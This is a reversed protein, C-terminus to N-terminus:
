PTIAYATCCRVRSIPTRRASPASGSRTRVITTSCPIRSATTPTIMPTPSPTHVTAICSSDTTRRPPARGARTRRSHRQQQRDNRQHRHPYGGCARASDIREARQSRCLETLRHLVHKCRSSGSRARPPQSFINGDQQHHGVGRRQHDLVGPHPTGHQLDTRTFQEFTRRCISSQIFQQRATKCDQQM